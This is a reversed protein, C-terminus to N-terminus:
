LRLLDPSLHLRHIRLHIGMKGCRHIPQRLQHHQQRPPQHWFLVSPAEEKVAAYVARVLKNVNERRWDGLSLGGGQEQYTEQDFSASTTPYFYDDFHIADVDYNRVIERVGDVILQRAEASGPNYSIAGDFSIVADSGEELWVAAPNDESLAM